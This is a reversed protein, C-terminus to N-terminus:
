VTKGPVRGAACAGRCRLIRFFFNITNDTKSASIDKGVLHALGIRGRNQGVSFVYRTMLPFTEARSLESGNENTMRPLTRLSRQGAPFFSSKTHFAPLFPVCAVAAHVSGLLFYYRTAPAVQTVRPSPPGIERGGEADLGFFALEVGLQIPAGHLLSEGFEVLVGGQRVEREDHAGFPNGHVSHYRCIRKGERNLNCLLFRKFVFKHFFRFFFIM